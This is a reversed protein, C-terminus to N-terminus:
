GNFINGIGSNTVPLGLGVVVPRNAANLRIIDAKAKQASIMLLQNNVGYMPMLEVALGLRLAREYGKPLAAATALTSFETFPKYSAMVISGTSPVPYVYIRAVTESNFLFAYRDPQGTVSKDPISLYQEPTVEQMTYDYSSADRYWAMDVSM